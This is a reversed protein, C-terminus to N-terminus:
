IGLLLLTAGALLLTTTHGLGWSVGIWIARLPNRYESVITTVAVLHDADFAHRVGLVLGLVLVEWLSSM